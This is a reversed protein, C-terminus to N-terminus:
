SQPLRATPLLAPRGRGRWAALRALPSKVVRLVLLFGDGREVPFREATDVITLTATRRPHANMLAILATLTQLSFVHFHINIEQGAALASTYATRLRERTAAREPPTDGPHSRSWDIGDLYDALHTADCATTDREFDEIMHAPPTLARTHDFTYRHDPVVLYLIGGPRTVRAWEWLAAVPNPAHELVHCTAVYALSSDRFPLANVDGIYDILAREGAYEAFRDIYYPSIGPVPSKFAGIEAGAHPTPDLWRAVRAAHTAPATPIIAAPRRPLFTRLRPNASARLTRSVLPPTRTGDALVAHLSITFPASPAIFPCRADIQFGTLVDLPLSLAANVDPRLVFHHVLGALRGDAHIEVAVIQAHADDAHVWGEIRLALPDCVADALPTDLAALM